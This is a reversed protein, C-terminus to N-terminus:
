FQLVSTEKSDGKAGFAGEITHAEPGRYRIVTLLM